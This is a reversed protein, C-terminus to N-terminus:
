TPTPPTISLQGPAKLQTLYSQTLYAQRFVVAASAVVIAAGHLEPKQTLLVAFMSSALCGAPKGVHM